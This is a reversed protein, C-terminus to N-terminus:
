EPAEQIITAIEIRCPVCIPGAMAESFEQYHITPKFSLEKGCFTRTNTQYMLAHHERGKAIRLTYGFVGDAAKRLFEAQMNRLETEGREAACKGCTVVNDAM